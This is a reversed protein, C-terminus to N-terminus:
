NIKNPNNGDPRVHLGGGLARTVAEAKGSVDLKGYLNRIHHRVTNVSIQLNAAIEAYTYGKSLGELVDWERKSLSKEVNEGPITGEASARLEEIVFRAIKASMPGGGSKVETIADGLRQTIETKLLYGDAGASIADLVHVKDDFGSLVLLPLNPCKERLARLTQVGDMGPMGLDVMAVDFGGASALSVGNTGDTACIPEHGARHTVREVLERDAPDDDIVLCRM